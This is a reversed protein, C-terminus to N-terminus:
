IELRLNKSEGCGDERYRDKDWCVWINECHVLDYCRGGDSNMSQSSGCNKVEAMHSASIYRSGSDGYIITDRIFFPYRVSM